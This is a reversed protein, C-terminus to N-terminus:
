QFDSYEVVVMKADPNGKGYEGSRKGPIQWVPTPTPGAQTQPTATAEAKTAPM